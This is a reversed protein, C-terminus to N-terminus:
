RRGFGQGTGGCLQCAQERPGEEFGDGDCALCSTSPQFPHGPPEEQLSLVAARWGAEYGARWASEEVKRALNAVSQPHTQVPM